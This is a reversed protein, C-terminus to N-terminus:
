PSLIIYVKSDSSLGIFVFATSLSIPFTKLFHTSHRTRFPESVLELSTQCVGFLFLLTTAHASRGSRRQSLAATCALFSFCPQPTHPAAMEGNRSPPPVRWFLFLLTTAHASRGSRRQSLATTCTLFSFCPQPTHPAAVEGDRSLPQVRWFLFLM